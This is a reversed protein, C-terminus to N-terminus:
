PFQGDSGCLPFVAPLVASILPYGHKLLACRAEECDRMNAIQRFAAIHPLIFRREERTVPISNALLNVLIEVLIEIENASANEIKKKWKRGKYLSDLFPLHPGIRGSM